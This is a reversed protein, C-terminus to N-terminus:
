PLCLLEEGGCAGCCTGNPDPCLCPNTWVKVCVGTVACAAGETTCTPFCGPASLAMVGAPPDDCGPEAYKTGPAGCATITTTTTDDTVTTTASTTTTGDTEVTSGCAALALSAVAFFTQKMM